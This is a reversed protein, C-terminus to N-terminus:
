IEVNTHGIWRMNSQFLTPYFNNSKGQFIELYVM